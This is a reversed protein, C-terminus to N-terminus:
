SGTKQLPPEAVQDAKKQDQQALVTEITQLVMELTSEILFSPDIDRDDLAELRKLLKEPLYFSAPRCGTEHFVADDLVQQAEKSLKVPNAKAIETAEEESSCHTIRENLLDIAQQVKPDVESM